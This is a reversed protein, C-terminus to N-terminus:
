PSQKYVVHFLRNREPKSPKKKKSDGETVSRVLCRRRIRLLSQFAKLPKRRCVQARLILRRSYLFPGLLTRGEGFCVGVASNACDGPNQVNSPKSDRAWIRFLKIRWIMRSMKNLGLCVVRLQTKRMAIPM